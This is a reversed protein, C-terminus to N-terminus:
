SSGPFVKLVLVVASITVYGHFGHIKDDVARLEAALVFPLLLFSLQIRRVITRQM